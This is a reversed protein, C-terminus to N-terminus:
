LENMSPDCMVLFVAESLTIFSKEEAFYALTNKGRALTEMQTWYKGILCFSIWTQCKMLLHRVKGVFILSPKSMKISTAYTTSVSYTQFHISLLHM